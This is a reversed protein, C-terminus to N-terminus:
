RRLNNAIKEGSRLAIYGGTGVTLLTWLEKPLVMPPLGAVPVIMYNWAIIIICIFMLIPRWSRQMWNGNMETMIINSQTKSLEITVDLIKSYLEARKEPPIDGTIATRIDKALNGISDVTTSIATSTRKHFIKSLFGM